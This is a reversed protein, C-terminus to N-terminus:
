LELPSDDIRNIAFRWSKLWIVSLHWSKMWSPCHWEDFFGNKMKIPITWKQLLYQLYQLLDYWMSKLTCQPNMLLISVNMWECLNDDMWNTKRGIQVIKENLKFSNQWMLKPFGYNSHTTTFVITWLIHHFWHPWHHGSGGCNCFCQVEKVLPIKPLISQALQKM